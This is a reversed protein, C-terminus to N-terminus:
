EDKKSDEQIKLQELQEIQKKYFEEEEDEQDDDDFQKPKYDPHTTDYTKLLELFVIQMEEIIEDKEEQTLDEDIGNEEKFKKIYEEKDGIFFQCRLATLLLFRISECQFQECIDLLEKITDVDLYQYHQKM